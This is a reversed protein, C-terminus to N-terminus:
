YEARFGMVWKSLIKEVFSKIQRNEETALPTLERELRVLLQRMTRPDTPKIEKWARKATAAFLDLEEDSCNCDYACPSGCACHKLRSEVHGPKLDSQTTMKETSESEPFTFLARHRTINKIQSGNM